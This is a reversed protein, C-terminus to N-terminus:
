KNTARYAALNRQAEELAPGTYGSWSSALEEDTMPRSENLNECCAKISAEHITGCEMSPCIFGTRLYVWRGEVERGLADSFCGDWETHTSEVMPHNEIDRLTRAKKTM